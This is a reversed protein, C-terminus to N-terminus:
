VESFRSSDDWRPSEFRSAREIEDPDDASSEEYFSGEAQVEELELEDEEWAIDVARKGERTESDTEARRERERRRKTEVDSWYRSFLKTADGETETLQVREKKETDSERLELRKSYNMTSRTLEIDQESYLLDGSELVASGGWILPKAVYMYNWCRRDLFLPILGLSSIPDFFLLKREAEGAYLYDDGYMPYIHTMPPDTFRMVDYGDPKVRIVKELFAGFMAILDPLSYNDLTANPLVVRYRTPLSPFQSTPISTLVRYARLGLPGCASSSTISIKRESQLRAAVVPHCVITLRERPSSDRYAM